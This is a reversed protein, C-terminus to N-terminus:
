AFCADSIGMSDAAPPRRGGQERIRGSTSTAQIEALAHM